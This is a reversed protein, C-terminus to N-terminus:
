KPTIGRWGRLTKRALLSISTTKRPTQSRWYSLCPTTLIIWQPGNSWSCYLLYVTCMYLTVHLKTSSHTTPIAKHDVAPNCQSAIHLSTTHYDTFGQSIAFQSATKSWISISQLSKLQLLEGALLLFSLSRCLACSSSSPEIFHYGSRELVINAYSTVHLCIM